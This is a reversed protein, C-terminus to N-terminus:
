PRPLGTLVATALIVFAAIVLEFGASARLRRAYSAQALRPRVIRWNYFGTIVVLSLVAIKTLLAIGYRTEWLQSLADFHMLANVVGTGAVVAAAALAIPSFRDVAHVRAADPDPELRQLSPLVVTLLLALLGLWAGAALVHLSDNVVAIFAFRVAGAAHGSLAPIMALGVAAALALLLGYRDRPPRAVSIGAGLVALFFVQILWARGWLTDTLMISLLTNDWARDSGHLATSQLWLRLVATVALLLAAFTITRWFRRQLERRAPDTLQLRPLLLVRAAMAGLLLLLSVFHLWRGFVPLLGGGSSGDDDHDHDHLATVPAPAPVGAGPPAPDVAAAASDTGAAADVALTFSYSGELVHGDAGATRWSVLYAGPQRLPPVAAVFERDSGSVFEIAGLVVPSGDPATLTVASYRAEVRGSFRLRLQVPAATIVEDRGPASAELRVHLAAEPRINAAAGTAWAGTAVGALLCVRLCVRMDASM